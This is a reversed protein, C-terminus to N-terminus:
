KVNGCLKVFAAMAEEPTALKGEAYENTCTYWNTIMAPTIEGTNVCNM